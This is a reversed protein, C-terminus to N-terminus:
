TLEDPQPPLSSLYASLAEQWSRLQVGLSAARSCDLLSFRPRPAPLDLEATSIPVIELDRHGARDLIARAFAYWSVSGSNCLHFLGKAGRQHLALLGQALDDAYTPAGRQDVVVRLPAPTQEAQRIAAQRLISGVFNHGQGFVWSTRVVVSDAGADFVAQEGQLKSQGYVSRPATPADESYPEPSEGDFVYDTSVHVLKCGAEQCLAALQGPAEGNVRFATDRQEECRDVATFAAANIVVDPGGGPLTQFLSALAGADSIDLDRHSFAGLLVAGAGNDIREVLSRGLQGESGTVLFRTM